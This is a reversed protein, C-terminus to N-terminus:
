TESVVFFGLGRARGFLRRTGVVREGFPVVWGRDSGHFLSETEDAGDDPEFGIPGERLLEGEGPGVEHEVHGFPEVALIAFRENRRDALVQVDRVRPGVREREREREM